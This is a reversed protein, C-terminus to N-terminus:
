SVCTSIKQSGAESKHCSTLCVRFFLCIESPQAIRSVMPHAITSQFGPFVYLNRFITCNQVGNSNRPCDSFGSFCVSKPSNHIRVTLKHSRRRSPLPPSGLSMKPSMVSKPSNRMRVNTHSCRIKRLFGSFCVSKPINHANQRRQSTSLFVHM